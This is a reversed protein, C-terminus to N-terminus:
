GKGRALEGAGHLDLLELMAYLPLFLSFQGVHGASM